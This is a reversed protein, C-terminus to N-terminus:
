QRSAPVEVAELPEDGHGSRGEVLSPRSVQLTLISQRVVNINNQFRRGLIWGVFHLPSPGDQADLVWLPWAKSRPGGCLLTDVLTAKSAARLLMPAEPTVQESELAGLRARIM